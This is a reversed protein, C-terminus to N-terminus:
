AVALNGMAGCELDDGIREEEKKIGPKVGNFELAVHHQASASFVLWAL